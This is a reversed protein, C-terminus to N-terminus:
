GNPELGPGMETGPPGNPEAGPGMEDPTSTGLIDIELLDLFATILEELWTPHSGTDEAVAFPAILLTLALFLGMIGRYRM